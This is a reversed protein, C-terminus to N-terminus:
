GSLARLVLALIFLLGMSLGVLRAAGRGDDVQSLSL